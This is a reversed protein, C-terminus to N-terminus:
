AHQSDVDLLYQSIERSVLSSMRMRYGSLNDRGIGKDITHRTDPPFDLRVSVSFFMDLKYTKKRETDM